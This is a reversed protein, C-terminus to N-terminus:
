VSFIDSYWRTNSNLTVIEGDHTRAPRGTHKVLLPNNMSMIRYVRKRNVVPRGLSLLKRNLLATTRPYGYNIRADTIEKIMPLLEDDQAKRCRGRRLSDERKAYLNSRSVGVADAVAKM